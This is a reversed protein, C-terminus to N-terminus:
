QEEATIALIRVWPQKPLELALAPGSSPMVVQQYLRAPATGDDGSLTRAYPAFLGVDQAAGPATGLWPWASVAAQEVQGDALKLGLPAEGQEGTSALLLYVRRAGKEGLPITQGDCAVAGAIGSSTDPFAFPVQEAPPFPSYYGSPYLRDAAGSADPPVWEAPFSRGERDFDGRSRHADDTVAVV